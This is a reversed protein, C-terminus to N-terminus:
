LTLAACFRWYPTTFPTASYALVVGTGAVTGAASLTVTNSSITYTAGAPIGPGSVYGSAPIGTNGGTVTATTSTAVTTASCVVGPLSTINPIANLGLDKIGHTPSQLNSPSYVNAPNPDSIELDVSQGYNHMMIAGQLVGTANVYTVITGVPPATVATTQANIALPLLVALALLSLFKRMHSPLHLEQRWQM